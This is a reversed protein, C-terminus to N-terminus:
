EPCASWAGLLIALDQAGVTGDGDLDSAEDTTNWAGLLLALDQPGVDGDGNIDEPCPEDVQCGDPIGDEDVDTCVDSLCSTEDITYAGAIQGPTNSCVVTETLTVTGGDEVFVGGGSSLAVNDYLLCAGLELSAAVGVYAGAGYEATCDSISCNTMVVSGSLISLGGGSMVVSDDGGGNFGDAALPGVLAIGDLFVTGSASSTAVVILSQTDDTSTITVAGDAVLTLPASNIAFPGDYSGAGLRITQGAAADDIVAQLDAGPTVEWVTDPDVCDATGDSDTDHFGEDVQGDGNNDLGDCEEIDFCDRIGDDDTDCVESICNNDGIETLMSIGHVQQSQNAASNGCIVTNDIVCTGTPDIDIGGGATGSYNSTVECDVLALDVGAYVQIAGGARNCENSIFSCDTFTFVFDDLGNGTLRIAGGGTNESNSDTVHNSDFICNILTPALGASAGALHAGGGSNAASNWKFTCSDLTPSCLNGYLAGGKSTGQDATNSEFECNTIAVDAGDHLYVAGGKGNTGTTANSEFRCGEILSTSNAIYLAGGSGGSSNFEFVCNQITPSTDRIIAARDGNQLNLNRIVTSEDDGTGDLDLLQITEQGSQGNLITQPTNEADVEGELTLPLGNFSITETLVYVGASLRITQGAAADDIVAQLDDGPTVEWVTDPDVCDATGDGDTNCVESVCNGDEGEDYSGFLQDTPSTNGCIISNNIWPTGGVGSNISIAGGELSATNESFECSEFVPAANEHIWVAGGRKGVNNTFVCNTFSAQVTPDPCEWVRLAGAWTGASNNEFTCDTFSAASNWVQVAGANGNTIGDGGTNDKFICNTFVPSSDKIEQAGGNLGVGNQFVLNEFKTDSTEGSNCRLILTNENGDLITLPLGDGDVAGRITVAKGSTSITTGVQYTEAILLIVDGNNAANIAANISTQDCTGDSCVTITEAHLNFAFCSLVVSAILPRM